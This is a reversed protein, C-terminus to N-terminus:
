LLQHQYSALELEATYAPRNLSIWQWGPPHKIAQHFSNSGPVPAGQKSPNVCVHPPRYGTGGERSPDMGQPFPQSSFTSWKRTSVRRHEARGDTFQTCAGTEQVYTYYHRCRHICVNCCRVCVYTCHNFARSTSCFAPMWASGKLSHLQVHMCYSLGSICGTDQAYGHTQIRIHTHVLLKFQTGKLITAQCHMHIHILQSCFVTRCHVHLM